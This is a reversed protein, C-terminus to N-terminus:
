SRMVNSCSDANTYCKCCARDTISNDNFRGMKLSTYPGKEKAELELILRKALGLPGVTITCGDVVWCFVSDQLEAIVLSKYSKVLM